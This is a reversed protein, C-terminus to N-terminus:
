TIFCILYLRTKRPIILSWELIVTLREKLPRWHHMFVLNSGLYNSLVTLFRLTLMLFISTMLMGCYEVNNGMLQRIQLTHTM